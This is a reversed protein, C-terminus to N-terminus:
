IRAKQDESLTAGKEGIMTKDGHTFLELDKKLSAYNLSRWHIYFHHSEVELIWHNCCIIM